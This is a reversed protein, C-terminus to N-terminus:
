GLPPDAGDGPGPMLRHSGMKLAGESTAKLWALCLFPCRVDQMALQSGLASCKGMSASQPSEGPHVGRQLVARHGLSLCVGAGGQTVRGSCGVGYRHGAVSWM